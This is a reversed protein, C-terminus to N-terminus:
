PFLLLRRTGGRVAQSLFLYGLRGTGWCFVPTLTRGGPCRSILYNQLTRLETAPVGYASSLRERHSYRRGWVILLWPLFSLGKRRSRSKFLSLPDEETTHSRERGGGLPVAEEEVPCLGTHSEPEGESVQM